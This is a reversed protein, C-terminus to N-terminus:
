KRPIGPLLSLEGLETPCEGPVTVCFGLPSPPPSDQSESKRNKKRVIKFFLSHHNRKQFHWLCVFDELQTTKPKTQKSLFSDSYSFRELKSHNISSLGWTMGTAKAMEAMHFTGVLDFSTCHRHSHNQQDGELSNPFGPSM